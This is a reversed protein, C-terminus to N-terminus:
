SRKSQKKLLGIVKQVTNQNMTELAAIVRVLHDLNDFFSKMEAVRKEAFDWEASREQKPSAQLDVLTQGVSDIARSFESNERGKLISRVVKYFDSEATYYDKRDGLKSQRHVLGMRALTRISTSIAGKTFGTETVIEDLTMEVPSLYLVAFIAGMSKPFGWFLSIQSLGQIFEAKIANLKTSPM